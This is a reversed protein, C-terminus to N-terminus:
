RIKLAVAAMLLEAATVWIRSLLSVLVATPLPLVPTLLFALSAERIGLGGPALLVLFGILWATVFPGIIRPMDMYTQQLVSNVLFFFATGFLLWSSLFVLFLPFLKKPAIRVPFYEKKLLKCILFLLKESWGPWLLLVFMLALIGAQIILNAGQLKASGTHTVLSLFLAASVSVQTELLLSSITKAGAINEQGTMYVRGLSFWIGGPIYKGLQSLSIIRFAKKLSLKEGLYFLIVTWGFCATLFGMGFFVFSLILSLFDFSFSNWSIQNWHTVLVRVLFALVLCSIGLFVLKKLPLKGSFNSNM